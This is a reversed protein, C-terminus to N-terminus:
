PLKLSLQLKPCPPNSGLVDTHSCRFVITLLMHPLKTNGNGSTMVARALVLWFDQFQQELIALQFHVM